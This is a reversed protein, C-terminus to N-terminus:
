KINSLFMLIQNSIDLFTNCNFYAGLHNDTLPPQVGSGTSFNALVTAGSLGGLVAM